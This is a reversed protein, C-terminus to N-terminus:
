IVFLVVIVVVAGIVTALNTLVLGVRRRTQQDFRASMESKLDGRLEAMESRLGSGLEAWEDRLDTGLEAVEDRLETGLETMDARLETMEDRLEAMERRLEATARSAPTNTPVATGPVLAQQPTFQPNAM